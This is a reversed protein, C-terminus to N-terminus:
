EEADSNWEPPMLDIVVIEPPCLLRLRPAWTREMGTGRSIVLDTGNIQHRGSVQARPLRCATVLAGIYPLCIQGGHTHGCLCLDVQHPFKLDLVFSPMHGLVINFQSPKLPALVKRRNGLLSNSNWISLGTLSVSLGDREIVVTQDSLWHVITPDLCRTESRAEANGPVAFVGLPAKFDMDRLMRSLKETQLQYSRHDLCELYDGAFLIMDPNLRLTQAFVRREYAGVNDTQIDALVAIRIPRTLGILKESRVQHITTCINYPEIFRAYIYIGFLAGALTLMPLSLVVASLPGPSFPRTTWIIAALAILTLPLILFVAVSFFRIFAFAHHRIVAAFLGGLVLSTAMVLAIRVIALGALSLTGVPSNLRSHFSRLAWAAIILCLVIYALTTLHIILTRYSM